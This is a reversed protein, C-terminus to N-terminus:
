LQKTNPVNLKLNLTVCYTKIMKLEALQLMYISADERVGGFENEANAAAKAALSQLRHRRAPSLM